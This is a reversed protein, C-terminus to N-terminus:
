LFLRERNGARINLDKKAIIYPIVRTIDLNWRKVFDILGELTAKDSLTAMEEENYSNQITIKM